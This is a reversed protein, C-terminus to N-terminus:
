WAYGLKISGSYASYGDAFQGNFALSASFGNQWALAAGLDVLASDGGPEAGYVTFSTGPLTQFAAVLSRENDSSHAWAARGSLTLLATEFPITKDFHLGLEGRADTATQSDYDLAFTGAGSSNESYSPIHLSTGQFAAYPTLGAVATDFRYGVEARGSFSHADYGADLVEGFAVRSTSVDHYGYALAAAVYGAGFDARGYAGANFLGADGSGLGGDLDFNSHGGGLAVGFGADGSRWGVGGAFGYVDTDLDHSGVVTEDGDVDATAGYAAGWGKWRSGVSAPTRM